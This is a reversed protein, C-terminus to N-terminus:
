GQPPWIRAWLGDRRILGHHLAAGIHALLLAAIAYGGLEHVTKAAAALTDSRPVLTPLGLRDLAEIPFGGARVRIYGSLPMLLILAYLAAHSAEAVRRQLAPITAPLAPAGRKLRLALRLLALLLLLTGINKHGIFLANQLARPLGSQVMVFGAVVMPLILLAMIWHLWRQASTYRNPM